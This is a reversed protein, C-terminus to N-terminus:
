LSSALALGDHSPGARRSPAVQPADLAPDLYGLFCQPGRLRLEGDVVRVSVGRVPRGVTEAMVEPADDIDAFSAPQGTQGTVKVLGIQLFGDYANGEKALSDWDFAMDLHFDTM